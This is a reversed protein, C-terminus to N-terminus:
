LRAATDRLVEFDLPQRQLAGEVGVGQRLLLPVHPEAVDCLALVFHRIPEVEGVLRLPDEGAVDAVEVGLVPTHASVRSAGRGARRKASTSPLATGGGSRGPSESSAMAMALPAYREHACLLPPAYFRRRWSRKCRNTIAAATCERQVIPSADCDSQAQM